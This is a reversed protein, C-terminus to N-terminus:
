VEGYAIEGNIMTMGVKLQAIEEIPVSSLDRPIFVMDALKGAEISGKINEQFVSHAANWTYCKISELLTIRQTSDMDRGGSSIRNAAGSIAHFPKYSHVFADTSVVAPIGANLMAALRCFSRARSEGYLESLDDGNEYLQGPQTIPLMGLKKIREVQGDTAGHCHEIRHRADRRPYQRQADEVADLVIDVAHDGQTHVGFQLGRRHTDILAAQFGGHGELLRARSSRM